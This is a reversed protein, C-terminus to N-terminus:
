NHTENQTEIPKSEGVPCWGPTNDDVISGYSSFIITAKPHRCDNKYLPHRGSRLLVHSYHFCGSCSKIKQEPIIRIRYGESM